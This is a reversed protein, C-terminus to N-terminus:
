DKLCRVSFGYAKNIVSRYITDIGTQLVRRYASGGSETSAWLYTYDGRNHFSGSTGRFGALKAEFGSSGDVRLSTGETNGRWGPMGLWDVGSAGALAAEELIVWDSDSPLRWGSPCVNMAADWIYYYGDNDTASGGAGEYANWYDVGLTNNTTPVLSVNSASWTQTGITVTTFPLDDDTVTSTVDTVTATVNNSTVSEDTADADAVGTITM